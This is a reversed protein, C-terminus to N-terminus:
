LRMAVFRNETELQSNLTKAFLEAQQQTYTNVQTSASRMKIGMYATSRIVVRDYETDVVVYM